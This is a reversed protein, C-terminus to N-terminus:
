FYISSLSILLFRFNYKTGTSMESLFTDEKSQLHDILQEHLSKFISIGKKWADETLDQTNWDREQYGEMPINGDVQNLVSEAWFIMHYLIECLSHGKNNPRTSTQSIEVSEMLSFVSKGYWPDGGLTNQLNHVISQM